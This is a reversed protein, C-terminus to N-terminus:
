KAAAKGAHVFQAIHPLVEEAAVDQQAKGGQTKRAVVNGVDKEQGMAQHAAKLQRAVENGVARRQADHAYEKYDEREIEVEYPQRNIDQKEGRHVHKEKESDHAGHEVRHRIGNDALYFRRGRLCFERDGLCVVEVAGVKHTELRQFIEHLLLLGKGVHKERAVFKAAEGAEIAVEHQLAQARLTVVIDM